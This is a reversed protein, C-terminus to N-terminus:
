PAFCADDPPYVELVPDCPPWDFFAAELDEVGACAPDSVGMLPDDDVNTPTESGSNDAYLAMGAYYFILPKEIYPEYGGWYAESVRINQTGVCTRECVARRFSFTLTAWEPEAETCASALLAFLIWPRCVPLIPNFGSM